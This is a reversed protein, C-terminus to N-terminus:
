ASADERECAEAEKLFQRVIREERTTKGDSKPLVTSRNKLLVARLCALLHVTDALEAELRQEESAETPNGLSMQENLPGTHSFSTAAWPTAVASSPVSATPNKATWAAKWLASWTARDASCQYLVENLHELDRTEAARGLEAVLARAPGRAGWSCLIQWATKAAQKCSLHNERLCRLLSDVEDFAEGRGDHQQVSAAASSSASASAAAPAAAPAAPPYSSSAPAGVSAAAPRSSSSAPATSSTAGLANAICLEEIQQLLLPPQVTHPSPPSSAQLCLVSWSHTGSAFDRWSKWCGKRAEVSSVIDSAGSEGDPRNDDYMEAIWVCESESLLALLEEPLRAIAADSSAIESTSAVDFVSITLDSCPPDEDLDGVRLKANCKAVVNGVTRAYLDQVLSEILKSSARDGAGNVLGLASSLRAEDVGLAAAAAAAQAAPSLLLILLLMGALSRFVPEPALEFADFAALTEKLLEVDVTADYVGALTQRMMDTATPGLWIDAYDSALLQCFVDFGSSRTLRSVELNTVTLQGHSIFQDEDYSLEMSVAACTSGTVSRHVNARRANVFPRILVYLVQLRKDMDEESSSATSLFRVIDECCKTKGSCSRGFTGIAQSQGSDCLEKFALAAIGFVHPPLTPDLATYRDLVQRSHTPLSRGPNCAILAQNRVATYPSGSCFRQLLLEVVDHSLSEKLPLEALNCMSALQDGALGQGPLLKGIDASGILVPERSSDGTINPDQAPLVRIGDSTLEVVETLILSSRDDDATSSLLASPCWIAQGKVYAM